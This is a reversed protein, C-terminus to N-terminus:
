RSAGRSVGRFIQRFSHPLKPWPEKTGAEIASLGRLRDTVGAILAARLSPPMASARATAASLEAEVRRRHGPEMAGLLEERWRWDAIRLWEVVLGIPEAQLCRMAARLQFEDLVQLAAVGSLPEAGNAGNRAAGAIAEAILAPDREIGLTELELLLDQLASREAAPLAELTWTRDVPAMAHLLLAARRAGASEHAAM